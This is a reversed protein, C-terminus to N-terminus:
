DIQEPLHSAYASMACYEAEGGEGSFRVDVWVGDTDREIEYGCHRCLIPLTIM